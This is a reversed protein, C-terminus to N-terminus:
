RPEPRSTTQAHSPYERASSLSILNISAAMAFNLCGESLPSIKSYAPQPRYDPMVPGSMRSGPRLKEVACFSGEFLCFACGNIQTARIHVLDRLKEEIASNKEANSFEMMKKFFEPSEQMYNVRQAMM